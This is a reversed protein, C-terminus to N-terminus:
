HRFLTLSHEGGPCCIYRILSGDPDECINVVMLALTFISLDSVPVGQLPCIILFAAFTKGQYYGYFLLYHHHVFCQSYKGSVPFNGSAAQSVNDPDYFRQRDYRFSQKNKIVLGTGPQFNIEGTLGIGNIGRRYLRIRFKM